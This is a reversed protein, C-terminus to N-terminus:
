AYWVETYNDDSDIEGNQGNQGSQGNEGNEHTHLKVRKKLGKELEPSCSCFLMSTSGPSLQCQSFVCIVDSTLINQIMLNNGKVKKLHLQYDIWNM